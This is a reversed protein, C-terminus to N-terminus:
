VRLAQGGKDVGQLLELPNKEPEMKKSEQEAIFPLPSDAYMLTIDVSWPESELENEMLVPNPCELKHTISTDADTSSLAAAASGTASSNTFSSTEVLAIQSSGDAQPIVAYSYQGSM